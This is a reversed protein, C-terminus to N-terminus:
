LETNKVFSNLLRTRVSKTSPLKISGRDPYYDPYEKPTPTSVPRTQKVTGQLLIDLGQIQRRYFSESIFPTFNIKKLSRNRENGSLSTVHRVLLSQHGLSLVLDTLVRQLPLSNKNLIHDEDFRTWGTQSFVTKTLNGREM